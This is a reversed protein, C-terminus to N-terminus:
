KVMITATMTSHPECHYPYTGPETFTYSFTGYGTLGGDFLKNDATVSHEEDEKNVWTVKTGVPVTLSNPRFERGWIWIENDPQKETEAAQAPTAAGMGAAFDHFWGHPTTETTIVTTTIVHEHQTIDDHAHVVIRVVSSTTTREEYQQQAAQSPLLGGALFLGTLMGVLSVVIATLFLRMRESM